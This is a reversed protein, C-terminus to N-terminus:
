ILSEHFLENRHQIYQLLWEHFLWQAGATYWVCPPHWSYSPSRVCLRSRGAQFYYRCLSISPRDGYICLSLQLSSQPFSAHKARLHPDSTLAARRLHLQGIPVMWPSLLPCPSLPLFLMGSLHPRHAWPGQPTSPASSGPLAWHSQLASPPSRPYPPLLVPLSAITSLLWVTNLNIIQIKYATPTRQLTKLPHTM